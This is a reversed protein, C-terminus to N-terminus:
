KSQISRVKNRMVIEEEISFTRKCCFITLVPFFLNMMEDNDNGRWDRRVFFPVAVDHGILPGGSGLSLCALSAGLGAPLPAGVKHM